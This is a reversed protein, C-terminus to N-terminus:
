VTKRNWPQSREYATVSDGQQVLLQDAMGLFLGTAVVGPISRLSQELHAADEIPWTQCDVLYNGNDSIFPADNRMRLRPILDLRMLLRQCLPWAFPVIELPLVGRFGLRPVVKEATVLWVVKRSAAAVIKERVLAGGLGKIGDLNDVRVEDAGDLTLDPEPYQELTAVPISLSQAVQETEVSTPIGVIQLGERVKVALHTLVARMTRGSGLGVVNGPRVYNLAADALPKLTPADYQM